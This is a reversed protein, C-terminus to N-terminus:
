IIFFNSGNSYLTISAYNTNIIYQSGGSITQSGHPILTINNNSSNGSEDVVNFVHNESTTADPLNLIIATTSTDVGLVYDTLVITYNYSVATRKIRFGAVKTNSNQCDVTGQIVMDVTITRTGSM